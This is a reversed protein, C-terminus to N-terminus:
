YITCHQTVKSKMDPHKAKIKQNHMIYTHLPRWERYKDDVLVKISLYISLYIFFITMSRFITKSETMVCASDFKNAKVNLLTKLIM